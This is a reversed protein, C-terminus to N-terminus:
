DTLVPTAQRVTISVEAGQKTVTGNVPAWAGGNVRYDAGWVTDVHAQVSGAKQYEHTVELKPYPAGPTSTKLTTGDGFTWTFETPRIKFDIHFTAPGVPLDVSTDFPVADTFYNSKFHVLTQNGAPQFRLAAEPPVVTKFASYIQDPTPGTPPTPPTVTPPPSSACYSESIYVAGAPGAPGSQNLVYDHQMLASGDDCYAPEDCTQQGGRACQM